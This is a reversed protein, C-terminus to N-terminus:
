WGTGETSHLHVYCSHLVRLRGPSGTRAILAELDANIIACGLVTALNIGHEYPEIHVERRQKAAVAKATDWPPESPLTVLRETIVRLVYNVEFRGDM